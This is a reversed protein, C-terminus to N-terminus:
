FAIIISKWANAKATIDFCQNEDNDEFYKKGIIDQSDRKMQKAIQLIGNNRERIYYM